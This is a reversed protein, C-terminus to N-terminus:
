EINYKKMRYGLTRRTIGLVKAAKSQNHQSQNLASILMQKEMDELTLGSSSLKGSETSVYGSQVTIPLDGPLLTKTNGMVMAHEIANELERINGPWSYNIMTNLAEPSLQPRELGQRRSIDEMFHDVLLPIDEKRARLPPLYVSVVNLRYYLDERFTKKEIAEELNQNTAAIVRVDVEITKSDGVKEFEREQLVRLLKIQTSVPIDGIEDLFITGHDAAQFRGVRDQIAGTFSGKVHGFLESELLSEPLAACVARIFPKEKRPSLDHIAQAVLEKGTGSEGRILVTTSTAAVKQIRTFVEQMSPSNGIINKINFQHTVAQKLERNESEMKQHALARRVQLRLEDLKVPKEVYQFAGLNLAEIASEKTSYATSIIVPTGPNNRVIWRFLELGDVGPMRLDTIVLDYLNNKLLSIATAGNNAVTIEYGEKELTKQYIELLKTEDDVILISNIPNGQM